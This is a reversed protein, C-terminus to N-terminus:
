LLPAILIQSELNTAWQTSDPNQPQYNESHKKLWITRCIIYWRVLCCKTIDNLETNILAQEKQCCATDKQLREKAFQESKCLPQNKFYTVLIELFCELKELGTSLALCQADTAKGWGYVCGYVCSTKIQFVIGSNSQCEFTTLIM